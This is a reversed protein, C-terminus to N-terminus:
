PAYALWRAFEPSAPVDGGAEALDLLARLRSVAEGHREHEEASMTRAVEVAVTREGKLGAVTEEVRCTAEAERTALAGRWFESSGFLKQLRRLHPPAADAAPESATWLTGSTVAM